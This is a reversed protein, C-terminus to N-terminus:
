RATDTKIECMEKYRYHLSTVDPLFISESYKNQMIFMKSLRNLLLFTVAAEQRTAYSHIAISQTM